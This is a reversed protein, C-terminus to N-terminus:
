SARAAEDNRSTAELLVSGVSRPPGSVVEVGSQRFLFFGARFRLAERVVDVPDAETERRRAGVIAGARLTATVITGDESTVQLLGTRRELELMALVTGLSMEALNGHITPGSPAAADSSEVPEAPSVTRPSTACDSSLAEELDSYDEYDDHLVLERGERSSSTVPLSKRDLIRRELREVRQEVRQLSAQMSELVLNQREILDANSDVRELLRQEHRRQHVSSLAFRKVLSDLNDEISGLRDILDDFRARL